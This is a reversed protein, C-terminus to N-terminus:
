SVHRYSWCMSFYRCATQENALDKRFRSWSVADAANGGAKLLDIGVQSCVKYESAVAGLTGGGSIQPRLNSLALQTTALAFVAMLSWTWIIVIDM